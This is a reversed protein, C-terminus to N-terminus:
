QRIRGKEASIRTTGEALCEARDLDNKGRPLDIPSDAVCWSDAEFCRAGCTSRVGQMAEDIREQRASLGKGFVVRSESTRRSHFPFRM